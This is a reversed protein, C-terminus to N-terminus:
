RFVFMGGNFCSPWACDSVASIEEREFLEDIPKVLMADSDLFIMKTYKTLTQFKENWLRMNMINKNLLLICVWCHLKTLTVGLEPRSYFALRDDNASVGDVLIVEDFVSSLDKQAGDSLRREKSSPSSRYGIVRVIIKTDFKGRKGLL